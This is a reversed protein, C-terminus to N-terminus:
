SRENRKKGAADNSKESYRRLLAGELQKIQAHADNKRQVRETARLVRIATKDLLTTFLHKKMSRPIKLRRVYFFIVDLRTLEQVIEGTVQDMEVEIGLGDDLFTQVYSQAADYALVNPVMSTLMLNALRRTGRDTLNVVQKLKSEPLHVMNRPVVNEPIDVEHAMIQMKPIVSARRQDQDPYKKSKSLTRQERAMDSKRRLKPNPRCDGYVGEPLISSKGITTKEKKRIM